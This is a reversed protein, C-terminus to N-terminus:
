AIAAMTVAIGILYKYKYKDASPDAAPTMM